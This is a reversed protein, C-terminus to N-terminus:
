FCMNIFFHFRLFLDNEGVSQIRLKFLPPKFRILQVGYIIPNSGANDMVRPRPAGKRALEFAEESQLDLDAM